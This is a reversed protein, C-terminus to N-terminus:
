YVKYIYYGIGGVIVFAVLGVFVTVQLMPSLTLM